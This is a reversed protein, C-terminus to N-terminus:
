AACTDRAERGVRREESRRVRQFYTDHYPKGVHEFMGISVIRDYAGRHERYDALEFRVNKVGRREQERKAAALQERSLTIGTVELDSSCVDSSWDRSFRTH